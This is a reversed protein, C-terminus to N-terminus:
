KCCHQRASKSGRIQVPVPCLGIDLIQILFADDIRARRGAFILRVAIHRPRLEHAIDVTREMERFFCRNRIRVDFAVCPVIFGNLNRFFVSVDTAHIFVPHVRIAFHRAFLSRDNNATQELCVRAVDARGIQRIRVPILNSRPARAIDLSRGILSEQSAIRISSELRIANYRATFDSLDQVIIHARRQRDGALVVGASVELAVRGVHRDRFAARQGISRDLAIQVNGLTQTRSLNCQPIHGYLARDNHGTTCYVHQIRRAIM